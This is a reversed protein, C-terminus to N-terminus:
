EVRVLPIQTMPSLEMNYQWHGDKKFGSVKAKLRASGLSKKKLALKQEPNVNVEFTGTFSGSVSWLNDVDFRLGDESEKSSKKSLLASASIGLHRSFTLGNV